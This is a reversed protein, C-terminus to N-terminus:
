EARLVSLPDIRTARLSPVVCALAIAAMLVLVAGLFTVLDNAEVGFLLSRMLRTLGFALATGVLIGALGLVLGHRVVLKLVTSRQAGLAIRVGLEPTRLRVSYSMVGYVGVAALVLAVFAFAGFLFLQFRQSALSKKLREDMSAIDSIPLDPDLSRVKTRAASIFNGPDTSTKMMVFMNPSSEGNNKVTGQSHPVYLEADPPQALGAHRVDGIVGVITLRPVRPDPSPPLNALMYEPQGPFVRKGVPNEHPFYKRRAAENIVAVMPQGAIDSDTFFRGQRLPIGMTRLYRATVQRYQIVPVDALRSAPHEEITFFKGWGGQNAIPLGSSAGAAEVGPILELRRILEDYFQAVKAPGNYAANPLSIGFTLVHNTQFGPDVHTLSEYTRILLGAGVVLVLSLAIETIVLANRFRKSGAGASQSRGGDRLAEGEHARTLNLAPLLGFLLVSAVTVGLTYLLVNADVGVTQLRPIGSPGFLRIMRILGFSLAIGLVGGTVGLLLSESLLQRILRWRGAGLAARVALERRRGSARAFLLNAVNLCAILLVVAAAAFLLLLPRRLDGVVSTLYDSADMGIGANESVERELARGVQQSDARAQELSVQPKLRGIASAYHNDRTAMDDGPAFSLPLWLDVDENPFRFNSAMVGIITFPEGNIHMTEHLVRPRGGFRSMWLAHSLVVVRHSGYRNEDSTFTRGMAPRVGLLPFLKADAYVQQVHEPSGDALNADGWFYGAISSFSHNRSTLDRLDPIAFGIQPLGKYPVACFLTVLRDQELYPFPRLLVGEVTSFIACNAGIGLALTLVAIATFGKEKWLQRAGYTVDQLFDELWRIGRQERCAESVLTANGFMRRAAHEADARSLGNRMERLTQMELHASLEEDLERMARGHFVLSKLRLMLDTPNM